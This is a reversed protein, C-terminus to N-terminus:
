KNKKYYRESEVIMEDIDDSFNTISSAYKELYDSPIKSYESILKESIVDPV